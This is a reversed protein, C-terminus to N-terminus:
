EEVCFFAPFCVRDEFDLSKSRCHALHVVLIYVLSKLLRCDFAFCITPFDNCIVVGDGGSIQYITM